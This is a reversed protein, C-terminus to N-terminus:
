KEYGILIYSESNPIPYMLQGHKGRKSTYRHDFFGGLEERRFSNSSGGVFDARHSNVDNPRLTVVDLFHWKLDELHRSLEILYEELM